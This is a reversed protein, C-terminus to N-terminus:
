AAAERKVDCFPRQRKKEILFSSFLKEIIDARTAVTGIGGAEALTKSITADKEEMFQAPKEMATLLTAENFRAPPTTEGRKLETHNVSLKEGETLKPLKSEKAQDEDENQRWGLSIMREGKTRLAESAIEAEVVTQESESAPFFNALFRRVILYYLKTEKDNMASIPPAQETPILAHHDSVKADNVMQKKRM